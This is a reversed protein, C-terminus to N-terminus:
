YTLSSHILTPNATTGNFIHFFFDVGTKPELFDHTQQLNLYGIYCIKFIKVVIGKLNM